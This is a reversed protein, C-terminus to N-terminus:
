EVITHEKIINRVTAYIFPKATEIDAPEKYLIASYCTSSILEVILFLMIEPERLNVEDDNIMQHYVDLFNIDNDAVNTTLAEKFIGWSLNKSIFNLLTQNSDLANIINDILFIIKETFNLSRKELEKDLAAVASSFLLSSEHSILRNRIDFKDKFYLYFTGKAMGAKSSIEAISTKSVGKTTFLEFASNLLSRQKNIKKNELKGM